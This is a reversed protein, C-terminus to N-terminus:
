SDLSRYFVIIFKRALTMHTLNQLFSVVQNKSPTKVYAINQQEKVNKYPCQNNTLYIYM